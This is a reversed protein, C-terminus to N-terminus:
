PLSMILRTGPEPRGLAPHDVQVLNVARAALRVDPLALEVRPPLVVARGLLKGPGHTHVLRLLAPLHTVDLIPCLSWVHLTCKIQTKFENVNM